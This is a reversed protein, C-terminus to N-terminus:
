TQALEQYNVHGILQAPSLKQKAEQDFQKTIRGQEIVWLKNGLAIAIHPDHTILMATISHAKILKKAYVLLKTAAVPDLAASPEDLLLIRPPVITAMLLAVLQRQGGSLSGMPQNLLKELDIDLVQAAHAVLLSPFKALGNRLQSRRGRQMALALNEKVSLSSVSSLSINQFLRGILSARQLENMTTVDNKDFLIQGQLPLIKGAITNFLTSKGSGNVGVITIFDGKNVSCSLTDLITKNNLTVTINKLEIM